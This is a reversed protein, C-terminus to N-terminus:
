LSNRAKVPKLDFSSGRKDEGKMKAKYESNNFSNSSESGDSDDFSENEEEVGDNEIM